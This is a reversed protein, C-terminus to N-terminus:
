FGGKWYGPIKVGGWDQPVTGLYGGGSGLLSGGRLSGQLSGAQPQASSFWGAKSGLGAVTGGMEAGRTAISNWFAADRGVDGMEIGAQRAAQGYATQAGTWQRVAEAGKEAWNADSMGSKYFEDLNATEQDGQQLVGQLGAISQKAQDTIQQKLIGRDQEQRAALAGAQSARQRALTAQDVGEIRGMNAMARSQAAQYQKEFASEAETKTQGSAISHFQQILSELSGRSQAARGKAEQYKAELEAKRKADDARAQEEPSPQAERANRVAVSEGAQGPAGVRRGHSDSATGVAGLGGTRGYMQSLSLGNNRFASEDVGTAASLMRFLNDIAEQDM